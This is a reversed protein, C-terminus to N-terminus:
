PASPVFAQTPSVAPQVLVFFHFEGHSHHLIAVTVQVREKLVHIGPWFRSHRILPRAM